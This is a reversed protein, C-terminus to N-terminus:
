IQVLCAEEKARKFDVELLSLLHSSHKCLGQLESLTVAYYEEKKEQFALLTDPLGKDNLEGKGVFCFFSPHIIAKEAIWTFEQILTEKDVKDGKMVKIEKFGLDSLRTEWGSLISDASPDTSVLLAYKEEAKSAQVKKLLRKLSHTVKLREDGIQEISEHLCKEAQDLEAFELHLLAKEHYVKWLKTGHREGEKEVREFFASYAKLALKYQEQQYLTRALSVIEEQSYPRNSFEISERLSSKEEVKWQTKVPGYVTRLVPTLAERM